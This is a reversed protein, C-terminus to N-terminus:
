MGKVGVQLFGPDADIAERLPGKRLETVDWKAWVFRGHLFKAEESAAWVAFQGPLDELNDNSASFCKRGRQLASFPSCVKTWVPIM